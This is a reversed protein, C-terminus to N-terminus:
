ILNVSVSPFQTLLSKYSQLYETKSNIVRIIWFLILGSVFTISMAVVFDRLLINKIFNNKRVLTNIFNNWSNTVILFLSGYVFVLFIAISLNKM